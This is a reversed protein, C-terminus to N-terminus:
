ICVWLFLILGSLLIMVLSLNVLGLLIFEVSCFCFMLLFWRFFVRICDFLSLGLISVWESVVCSLQLNRLGMWFGGFGLIVSIIGLVVVWWQMIIGILSWFLESMMVMFFGCLMNVSLLRLSIVLLFIRGVMIVFFFMMWRILCQKLFFFKLFSLLFSVLCLLVWCDCFVLREIVLLFVMMCIIFEIIWLVVSCFVEFM